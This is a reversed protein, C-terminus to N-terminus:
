AHANEADIPPARYSSCQRLSSRFRAPCHMDDDGVRVTTGLCTPNDDRIRCLLLHAEDRDTDCASLKQFSAKSWLKASSLLIAIPRRFRFQDPADCKSLLQITFSDWIPDAVIRGADESAPANSLRRNFAVVWFWDASDCAEIIETVINDDGSTKGRPFSHRARTIDDITFCGGASTLTQDNALLLEM